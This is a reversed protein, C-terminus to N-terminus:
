PLLSHNLRGHQQKWTLNLRDQAAPPQGGADPHCRTFSILFSQLCHTHGVGEPTLATFHLRFICCKHTPDPCFIM